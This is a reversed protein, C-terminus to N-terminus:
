KRKRAGKGSVVAAKKAPYIRWGAKEGVFYAADFAAISAFYEWIGFVLAVFLCVLVLTLRRSVIGSVLDSKGQPVHVEDLAAFFLFFMFLPINFASIGLALTGIVFVVLGLAHYKCDIKRALVNASATAIWLTALKLVSALYAGAVGYILAFLYGAKGGIRRDEIEDALKAFFGAVASVVIIDLM